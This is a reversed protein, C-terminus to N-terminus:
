VNFNVSKGLRGLFNWFRWLGEGVGEFFFDMRGVVLKWFTRLIIFDSSDV